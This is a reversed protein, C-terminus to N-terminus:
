KKSPDLNSKKTSKKKRHHVKLGCRKPALFQGLCEYLTRIHPILWLEARFITGIPVHSRSSHVEMCECECEYEYKNM